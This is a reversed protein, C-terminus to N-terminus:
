QVLFVGSHLLLILPSCLTLLLVAALLPELFFLLYKLVAGLLLFWRFSVRAPTISRSFLFQPLAFVCCFCFYFCVFPSPRLFLLFLAALPIPLPYPPTILRPVLPLTSAAQSYEARVAALLSFTAPDAGPQLFKCRKPTARLGRKATSMKRTKYHKCIIPNTSLMSYDINSAVRSIQEAKM